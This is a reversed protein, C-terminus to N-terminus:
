VPANLHSSIAGLSLLSLGSKLDVGGPPVCGRERSVCWYWSGVCYYLCLDSAAGEYVVSIDPESASSRRPRRASVRQESGAPKGTESGAAAAAAPQEVDLHPCAPDLLEEPRKDPKPPWHQRELALLSEAKWLLLEVREEHTMTHFDPMQMSWLTREVHRMIWLLFVRPLVTVVASVFHYTIRARLPAGSLDPRDPASSPGGSHGPRSTRHLLPPLGSEAGLGSVGSAADNGAAAARPSARGSEGAELVILSGRQTAGAAGSTPGTAVASGGASPSPVGAINESQPAAAADNASAGFSAFNVMKRHAGGDLSRDTRETRDTRERLHLEEGVAGLVIRAISSRESPPPPQPSPAGAATVDAPVDRGSLVRLAANLRPQSSRSTRPPYAPPPSPSVARASPLRLAPHTLAFARPSTHLLLATNPVGFAGPALPHDGPDGASRAALPNTSMLVAQEASVHMASDEGGAKGGTVPTMTGSSGSGDTGNGNGSGGGNQNASASGPLTPMARGPAAGSGREVDPLVSVRQPLGDSLSEFPQEPKVPTLPVNGFASGTSHRGGLPAVQNPKPSGVSAGRPFGGGGGGSMASKLTLGTVAPADGEAQGERRAPSLSAVSTAASKLSRRSQAWSRNGPAPGNPALFATCLAYAAEPRLTRANLDALDVDPLPVDSLWALDVLKRLRMDNLRQWALHAVGLRLLVFLFLAPIGLPYMVLWFIAARYYPTHEPGHCEVKLDAALWGKGDITVCSM